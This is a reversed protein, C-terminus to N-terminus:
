DASRLREHRDYLDFFVDRVNSGRGAHSAVVDAPTIRMTARECLTAVLQQILPLNPALAILSPLGTPSHSTVLLGAAARRCRHKLLLRQLWGLQEYGDIVLLTRSDNTSENEWKFYGRPLWRQGDRLTIAQISCGADHLAPLLAALLTSKGCGHPGIIEGWWGNAALRAVLTEPSEGEPFRFSLAGPRTWCTAFPNSNRSPPTSLVSYQTRLASAAILVNEPM